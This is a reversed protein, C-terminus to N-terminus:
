DHSSNLRTSKRDPEEAKVEEKVEVKPAEEVKEIPKEEVVKVSPKEEKVEKKVEAKVEAKPEEEVVNVKANELAKLKEQVSSIIKKTEAEKGMLNSLIGKLEGGNLLEVVKKINDTHMSKQEAM